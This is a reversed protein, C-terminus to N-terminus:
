VQVITAYQGSESLNNNNGEIITNAYKTLDFSAIHNHM